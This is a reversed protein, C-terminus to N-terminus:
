PKDFLAKRVASVFDEASQKQWFGGSSHRLDGGATNLTISPYGLLLLVGLAVLIIGIVYAGGQGAGFCALGILLLIIGFLLKRSTEIRISTVHRIPLEELVGGGFWGKKGYFAVRDSYVEGFENSLIPTSQAPM